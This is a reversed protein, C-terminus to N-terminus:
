APVLSFIRSAVQPWVIKIGSGTTTFPFGPVNTIRMLLPSAALDGTDKFVILAGLQAGAALKGFDNDAADVVGNAVTRSALSQVIIPAGADAMFEHTNLYPADAPMAAVKINDAAWNIQGLMTKEAGKPYFPGAIRAIRRVDDDWPIDIAGGNTAMPFGQLQDYHLLLPSTAPNGTNKYIVVGKATSGTPIVGFALDDAGLVGGAVSTNTLAVDTGIRPGVQDLYEHAASYTYATPVLAARLTGDSLDIQGSLLKEMGKPYSTNM